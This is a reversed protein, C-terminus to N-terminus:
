FLRNYADALKMVIEEDSMEAVPTPRPTAIPSMDPTAMIQVM